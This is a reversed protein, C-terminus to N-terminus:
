RGYIRVMMALHAVLGVGLIWLAYKQLYTSFYAGFGVAFVLATLMWLELEVPTAKNLKEFM